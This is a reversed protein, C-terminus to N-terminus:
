EQLQTCYSCYQSASEAQQPACVKGMNHEQARRISLVVSTKGESQLM